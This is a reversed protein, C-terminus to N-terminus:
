QSLDENLYSLLLTAHVGGFGLSNVYAHQIKNKFVFSPSSKGLFYNMKFSSDKIETNAISFLYQSKLVELSAIIDIAGSAGLTHGTCWKTNTIPIFEQNISPLFQSLAEEEALDNFKTGTGHAMIFDPKIQTNKFVQDMTRVLGQGQFSPRTISSGETDSSIKQICAEPAQNTRWHSQNSLVFFAMADGLQLGDRTESFPKNKTTSLVKLSYFGNYVFPGILDGCFLIAVDIVSADLMDQIFELAIHTSACANSITIKQTWQFESQASVFHELVSSFPNKSIRISDTSEAWIYDEIFGKTSSLYIGIKKSKLSNLEIKSLSNLFRNWQSELYFEFQSQFNRKRSFISDNSIQCVRGSHPFIYKEFSPLQTWPDNELGLSHDIGNKLSQFLNSKDPGAATACECDLIWM